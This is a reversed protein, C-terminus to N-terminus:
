WPGPRVKGSRSFPCGPVYGARLAESLASGGNVATVNFHVMAKGIDKILPRGRRFGSLVWAERFAERSRNLM